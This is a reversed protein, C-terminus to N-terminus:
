SKVQVPEPPLATWITLTVTVGCGVAVTVSFALGLVTALPPAEVKVQVEVFAVDHVAVPPQLPTLAVPPECDVPVSVALAVYPSVQAPAPPLAEWVTVTVTEFAGGVTASDAFGLVTCLPLPAVSVQDEVLAIDHAAEPPHDPVLDSVPVWDVPASVALVVKVNVQVPLAPVAV